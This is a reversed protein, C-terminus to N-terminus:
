EVTQLTISTKNARFFNNLVLIFYFHTAGDTPRMVVQVANPLPTPTLAILQCLLPRQVENVCCIYDSDPNGVRSGKWLDLSESNFVKYILKLCTGARSFKCSLQTFNKHNLIINNTLKEVNISVYRKAM